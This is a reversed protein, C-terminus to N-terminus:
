SFIGGDDRFCLVGGLFEFDAERGHRESIPQRAIGNMMKELVDVMCKKPYLLAQRDLLPV